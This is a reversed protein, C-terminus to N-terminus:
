RTRRKAAPHAARPTTDNEDLWERLARNVVSSFTHPTGLTAAIYEIAETTRRDIRITRNPKTTM